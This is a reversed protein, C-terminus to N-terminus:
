PRIIRKVRTKEVGITGGFQKYMIMNNKEWCSTTLIISENKLHIQIYKKPEDPTSGPIKKGSVAATGEPKIDTPMNKLTRGIEGKLVQGITQEFIGAPRKIKQRIDGLIQIAFFSIPISSILFLILLTRWYNKRPAPSSRIGTDSRFFETEEPGNKKENSGTRKLPEDQVGARSFVRPDQTPKLELYSQLIRYAVNIEKLKEEAKQQLRSNHAYRDPHWISVLDRYAQRADDPTADRGLELIDFCKQIDM